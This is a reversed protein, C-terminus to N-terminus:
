VRYYINAPHQPTANAIYVPHGCDGSVVPHGYDGSVVPHGYDGSVVPHGYDGSVKEYHPCYASDSTRRPIIIDSPQSAHSNGPAAGGSARLSSLSVPPPRSQAQRSRRWHCVVCAVGVLLVLFVLGAVGGAILVTSSFLMAGGGAGGVNGPHTGNGVPSQGVKLLVKMGRSVCVGGRLSDLGQRTGDSTAIIYYDTHTHFEHGWLNPSFEQFKITFRTDSHPRDCTLLLASDDIVECRDAERPSQVLYLRYFEYLPPALPGSAPCVLDLRDGMQPYLVYGQVDGFRKNLSNWYVPEMNTASIGLLGVLFVVLIRLGHAGRWRAMTVGSDSREEGM